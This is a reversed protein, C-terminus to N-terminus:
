SGFCLPPLAVTEWWYLRIEYFYALWGAYDTPKVVYSSVGLNYCELVDTPDASSSLMIIPIQRFSSSTSKIRRLLELGDERAPLYLDLMILKPIEWEQYEWENFLALVQESNSVRTFVIEPLYHRLAHRMLIWQDEADEILLLKADKFNARIRALYASSHM